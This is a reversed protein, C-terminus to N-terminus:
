ANSTGDDAAPATEERASPFARLTRIPSLVLWAFGLWAGVASVLLTAHVGISGGLIGATLAGLPMAGATMFGTSASLRGLLHDPTIAQSLSILNVNLVVASVGILFQGSVLMVVALEQPGRILANLLNGSSLLFSAVVLCRGLGLWRPLRTALVAGLLAGPGIAGFCLGMVTPSLGVDRTLYLIFVTSLMTAFYNGTAASGAMARLIPTHAVLRLGAGIERWIGAREEAPLPTPEPTHVLGISLASVLFSLADCSVALPATLWGVLVGALGPGAIQAVSRSMEFKSNAEILERRGVLVPVYSAYAVQFFVGLLGTLFGVLYVQGIRLSGLLAAAPVSGLLLARGMDAAILIPRRRSRDVWAGAFLGVLLFPLGEATRLFGMEQPTARLALVATLPLALGSIESGFVSVTQGIWLRVFDPHAWLGGLKVRM